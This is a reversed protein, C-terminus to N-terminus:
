RARAAQPPEFRGRGLYHKLRFPPPEERVAGDPRPRRLAREAVDLASARYGDRAVVAREAPPLISSVQRLLIHCATAQKRGRQEGEVDRRRRAQDADAEAQKQRLELAAILSVAQPKSMGLYVMGSM